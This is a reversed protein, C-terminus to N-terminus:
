ESYWIVWTQSVRFIGPEPDLLDGETEVFAHRVPVGNLMGQFDLLAARVAAALSVAAVYQEAYSDIQFTGATLRSTGCYM